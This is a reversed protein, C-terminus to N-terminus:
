HGLVFQSHSGVPKWVQVNESYPLSSVSVIKDDTHIM